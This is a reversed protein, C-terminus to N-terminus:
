PDDLPIPGWFLVWVLLVNPVLIPILPNVESVLKKRFLRKRFYLRKSEDDWKAEEVGKGLILPPPQSYPCKSRWSIPPARLRKLFLSFSWKLNFTPNNQYKPCLLPPFDWNLYCPIQNAIFYQSHLSPNTTPNTLIHTLATFKQEWTTDEM